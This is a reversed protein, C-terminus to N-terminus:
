WFVTTTRIALFLFVAFIIKSVTQLQLDAVSERQICGNRERDSDANEQDACNTNSGTSAGPGWESWSPRTKPQSRVTRTLSSVSGLTHWAIKRVSAVECLSLVSTKLFAM